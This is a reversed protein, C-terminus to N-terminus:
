APPGREQERSLSLAEMALRVVLPGMLAGWTGFAALGGFVSVFVIILPLQLAGWRAYIPRLLNDIVSIVLVGLAVLVAARGPRGTLLLGLAIPGWVLATGAMPIIAALGTIPGLVLARPVGLALYIVTAAAGQTACTLGVGILLGRGTEHFADSLRQMAGESLPAHRRAWAWADGARVLLAYAAGFYIFLGIFGQAAAGAVNTLLGMGKTGTRQLLAAADALSEPARLPPADPNAATLQELAGVTTPSERVLTFVEAAGSVVGISILVVPLALAVFILLTLVAAARSRGHMRRALRSLLPRALAATWAALVLPPWLPWLTYLAAASLALTLWRLPTM